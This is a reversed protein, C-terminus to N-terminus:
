KKVTWEYSGNAQNLAEIPTGVPADDQLRKAYPKQVEAISANNKQAVSQYIVMRDSNEASVLEKLAADVSDSVRVAVLGISNEGIVGKQEWSILDSRRQKRRSVAAEVEPSLSEQAYANTIFYDSIRSQSNNPKAQKQPGSIMNEIDDIDKAVHQYIDLRMSIDMKIPEKPAEVKIRACGVNAMLVIGIFFIIRM